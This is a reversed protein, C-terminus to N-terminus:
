FDSGPQVQVGLQGYRDLRAPDSDYIARITDQFRLGYVFRELSMETVSAFPIGADNLFESASELFDDGLFTIAELSFHPYHEKLYVTRKLPVDYWNIHYGVIRRVKRWRGAEQEIARVNCLVGEIVIIVREVSPAELDGGQM